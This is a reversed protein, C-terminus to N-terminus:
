KKKAKSSAEAKKPAAAKPAKAAKKPAEAKKAAPKPAEAAPQEDRKQRMFTLIRARERRLSRIELPNKVPSISNSFKIRILKEEADQLQIQLDPVSLESLNVAEKAKAM